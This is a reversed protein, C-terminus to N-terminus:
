EDSAELAEIIRRARSEWTYHAADHRAQQALRAALDRDSLLRNIARAMASPDDVPALLGNEGDRIVERVSPFDAAVIPLGASLYDFLKLPSTFCRAVVGEALPLLAVDASALIDPVRAYPQPGAFVVREALGLDAAMRELAKQHPDEPLGGVISLEAEPVETLARLILEVGKWPYLQGLYILHPRRLVSSSPGLVSSSPGLVSSSPADKTRRGGDKTPGFSADPVVFIKEPGVGYDHILRARLCETITLLRWAGDFVAQELGRRRNAERTAHPGGRADDLLEVSPLGHVEFVLGRGHWRGLKLLLWALRYDRAVLVNPRARLLAPLLMLCAALYTWNWFRTYWWQLPAPAKPSLRLTSVGVLRLNPHPELGYQALHKEVAGAERRGVVLTVACGAAALAHCTNVIQIARAKVHPFDISALYLLHPFTAAPSPRAPRQDASSTRLLAQEPRIIRALGPWFKEAKVARASALKRRV